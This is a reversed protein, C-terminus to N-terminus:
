TTRESLFVPVLLSPRMSSSRSMCDRRVPLVSTTVRM